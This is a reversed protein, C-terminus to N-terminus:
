PLSAIIEIEVLADKPLGAVAVTSRAPKVAGDPALYRAYVENMAAFDKMDKLFVVTKVVHALDAGAASLIAKINELVRTTQEAIAGPVLQGTAPDLAIQGSAYLFNGIRVAQSYPGIAGPAGSTSVATKENM